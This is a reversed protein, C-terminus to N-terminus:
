TVLVLGPGPWIAGVLGGLSPGHNVLYHQDGFGFLLYHAKPLQSRISALPAPIDGGNFGIDTHWGRRVVFIVMRPGAAAESIVAVRQPPLTRCGALALAGLLAM